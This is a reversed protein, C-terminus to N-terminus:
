LKKKQKLKESKNFINGEARRDAVEVLRVRGDEVSVPGSM